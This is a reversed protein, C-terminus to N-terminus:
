YEEGPGVPVPYIPNEPSEPIVPVEPMLLGGSNPLVLNITGTATATLTKGYIDTYTVEVLLGTAKTYNPAIWTGTYYGSSVERMTFSMPKIASQDQAIVRFSATGGALSKFSVTLVEGSKLTVNSSPTLDIIGQEKVINVKGAATATVKNGASDVFEAEM